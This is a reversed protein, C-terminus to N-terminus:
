RGAERNSKENFISFSRSSAEKTQRKPQIYWSVGTKQERNGIGQERSGAKVSDQLGGFERQAV